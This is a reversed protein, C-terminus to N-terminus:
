ISHKATVQNGTKALISYNAVNLNWPLISSWIKYKHSDGVNWSNRSFCPVLHLSWVNKDNRYLVSECSFQFCSLFKKRTSFYRWRWWRLRCNSKCIGLSSSRGGGHWSANLKANQDLFKIKRRKLKASKLDWRRFRLINM